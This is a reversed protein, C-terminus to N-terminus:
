TKHQTRAEDLSSQIHQSEIKAAEVPASASNTGAQASKLLAELLHDMKATTKVQNASQRQAAVSLGVFALTLFIVCSILVVVIIKLGSDSDTVRKHKRSPVDVGVRNEDRMVPGEEAELEPHPEDQTNRELLPDEEYCYAYSTVSKQFESM